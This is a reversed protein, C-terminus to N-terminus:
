SLAQPPARSPRSAPVIRPSSPTDFLSWGRVHAGSAVTDAEAVLAFHLLRLSHCLFCHDGTSRTTARQAGFHHASHDHIVFPPGFDRDDGGAHGFDLASACVLLALAVGLARTLRRHRVSRFVV